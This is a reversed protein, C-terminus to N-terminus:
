PLTKPDVQLGPILGKTQNSTTHLVITNGAMVASRLAERGGFTELGPYQSILLLAIGVKRGERALRAWETAIASVALTAHCEELVILLGPREPSPTFEIEGDAANERGRADLIALATRLMASANDPTGFWDAHEALAPSSTGYQPDLYWYETDGGALASIVINEVVRSKGIGTGGIIVGSWMSGATYLKYPAEGDGDAYPGLDLLGDHRRPGDFVVPGQIPSDTIVQLRCWASSREPHREIVLDQVGIDLATALKDLAGLATALSQRGRDLGLDFAITYRTGAPDCLVSRPLPGGECAAYDRYDTIIKEARDPATVEPEEVAAGPYGLRNAQWWGAALTVEGTLLEAGQVPGAGMPSLTLWAAGALGALLIRRAWRPRHKRARAAGWWAAPFTTAALLLVMPAAQVSGAAVVAHCALGGFGLVGAAAHPAAQRRLRWATARADRWAHDTWGAPGWEMGEAAADGAAEPPVTTATKKTPAPTRKTKGATTPREKTSTKMM